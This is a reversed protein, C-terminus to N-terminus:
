LLIDHLKFVLKVGLSDRQNTDGDLSHTQAGDRNLRTSQVTHVDM